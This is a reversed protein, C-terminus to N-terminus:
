VLFSLLAKYVNRNMMDLSIGIYICYINNARIIAIYEKIKVM